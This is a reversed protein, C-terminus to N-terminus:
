TNEPNYDSEPEEPAVPMPDGLSLLDTIAQNYGVSESLLRASVIADCANPVRAPLNNDKLALLARQMTENTLIERLGTRLPETNRFEILANNM